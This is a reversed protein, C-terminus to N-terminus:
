QWLLWLCRICSVASTWWYLLAVDCWTVVLFLINAYTVRNKNPKLYCTLIM